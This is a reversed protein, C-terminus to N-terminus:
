AFPNSLEPYRRQLVREFADVLDPDLHTGRGERLIAQVREVPMGAKYPREAVLADFVDAVAIIRAGLPIAEGALGDPYGKGDWREHHGRIVPCLHRLSEIPYIMREGIVPHAKLIEYEEPTLRDPKYLIEPPIRTKGIDHLLGAQRLDQSSLWDAMKELKEPPAQDLMLAMEGTDKLLSGLEVDKRTKPDVGVEDALDLALELVRASHSFTFEGGMKLVLGLCNVAEERTLEKLADLRYTKKLLSEMNHGAYRAALEALRQGEPSTQARLGLRLAEDSKALRYTELRQLEARVDSQARKEAQRQQGELQRAQGQGGEQERGKGQGGSGGSGGGGRGKRTSDEVGELRDGRSEGTRTSDLRSANKESATSKREGELHRQRGDDSQEFFLRHGQDHLEDLVPAHIPIQATVPRAPTSTSAAPPPPAPPAPNSPNAEAEWGAALSPLPPASDKKGEGERKGVSGSLTAQLGRLDQLPTQATLKPVRGAGSRVGEIAEGGDEDRPKRSPESSKPADLPSKQTPMMGQSLVSQYIQSSKQPLAPSVAAVSSAAISPFDDRLSDRRQFDARAPLEANITPPGELPRAELPKAELQVRAMSTRYAPTTEESLKVQLWEPYSKRSDEAPSPNISVTRAPNLTLRPTEKSRDQLFELENRNTAELLKAELPNLRPNGPAVKSPPGGAVASSKGAASPGGGVGQSRGRRRVPEKLPQAATPPPTDGTGGRWSTRNHSPDRLDSSLGPAQTSTSPTPLRTEVQSLSDRQSKPNTHVGQYHGTNMPQQSGFVQVEVRRVTVGPQDAGSLRASLSRIKQDLHELARKPEAAIPLGEENLTPRATGANMQRLLRLERGEFDDHSALRTLYTAAEFGLQAQPTEDALLTTWRSRLQRLLTLNQEHTKQQDASTLTSDRRPPRSPAEPQRLSGPGVGVSKSDFM